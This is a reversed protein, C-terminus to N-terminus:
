APVFGVPNLAKGREGGIQCETTRILIHVGCRKERQRGRWAARYVTNNRKQSSPPQAHIADKTTWAVVTREPRLCHLWYTFSHLIEDLSAPTVSSFPSMRGEHFSGESIEM